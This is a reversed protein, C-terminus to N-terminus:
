LGPKRCSEIREYQDFMKYLIEVRTSMSEIAMAFLMFANVAFMWVITYLTDRDSEHPVALASFSICRFPILSRQLLNSQAEQEQWGMIMM